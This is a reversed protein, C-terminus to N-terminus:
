RSRPKKYYDAIKNREKVFYKLKKLQSLGLAASIENMRFNLGLYQQEYYWDNHKNKISISKKKQLGMIKLM